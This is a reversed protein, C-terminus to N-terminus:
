SEGTYIFPEDPMVSKDFIWGGGFGCNIQSETFGERFPTELRKLKYNAENPDNVLIKGDETTGALVIFHQTTTFLSNKNMLAVVVKGEKVADLADYVTKVKSLPLQLADCAYEFRQVLNYVGKIDGGFYGALEDPLYPHDTLYTAVMALATIGCGATAVTGGAYPVDPYDTQWFLPVPNNAVPSKEVASEAIDEAVPVTEKVAKEVLITLPFIQEPEEATKQPVTEAPLTEEPLTEVPQTEEAETEVPASEEPTTEEPDTEEADPLTDYIWAASWGTKLATPAFGKQLSAALDERSYDDKCPDNVLLKGAKTIGALVVFHEPNAFVSDENLLAIVLQGEKLADIVAHLDEAREWPLQLVDSATELWIQNNESNGEKVMKKALEDPLLTQGTLHSAVMALSAVCSGKQALTGGAFPVNPYDTQFYLPIGNCMLIETDEPETPEEGIAPNESPKTGEAPKEEDLPQIEPVTEHQRALTTVPVTETATTTEKASIAGVPLVQGLLMAGALVAASAARLKQNM